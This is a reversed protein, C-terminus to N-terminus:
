TGLGQDDVLHTARQRRFTAPDIIRRGARDDAGCGVHPPATKEHPTVARTTPGTRSLGTEKTKVRHHDKVLRVEVM